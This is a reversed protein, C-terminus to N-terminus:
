DSGVKDGTALGVGWPSWRMKADVLRFFLFVSEDKAELMWDMVRRRAGAVFRRRRRGLMQQENAGRQMVAVAMVTPSELRQARTNHEVGSGPARTWRRVALCRGAVRQQQKSSCAARSQWWGADSVPEVTGKGVGLAVVVLRRLCVAFCRCSSPGHSFDVVSFGWGDWPDGRRRRGFRDGTSRWAPPLAVVM